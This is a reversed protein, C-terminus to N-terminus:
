NQSYIKNKLTEQLKFSMNQISNIRPAITNLEEISIYGLKEAVILQSELEFCSGNAIALFQVFEKDSNRGSGEAINSSISIGCRNIQTTLVYKEEVPFKKTLSYVDVVLDIAM